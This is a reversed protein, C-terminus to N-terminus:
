AKMQRLILFGFIPLLTILSIIGGWYVYKQPKFEVTMEYDGTQNIPFSNLNGIKKSPITKEEVKAQWFEDYTESFVLEFPQTAKVRIRYKTPNIMEWNIEPLNDGMVFFHDYFDPLEYLAIKETLEIKKLWSIEDLFKEAEERQQPNYKHEAIFIESESDFPVIVYRVAMRKLAVETEPSLFYSLERVYCRDNPFCDGGWKSPMETKLSCFPEGCASDTVFDDANIAPHNNSYFGFRQRKPVWFTRFFEDQSDFFDKLVFYEQPTQKAEFTGKLKGFVAPKILFLLYGTIFLLFIKSLYRRRRLRNFIKSVAFPVLVSYSLAILVYFKTPDRFLGMGPLHNFLWLYIEGFPPKSGKALFSGILALSSFFLITKKIRLNKLGNIFLLSTFALIPLALFAPRMFYIKGFINEPWNPHLFSLSNSFDAFSLFGVWGSSSLGSPYSEKGSIITPLIWFFHVGIVIALPILFTEVVHKLHSFRYIWFFYFIATALTLAAIRPEFAIQLALSLGLIVSSTVSNNTTNRIFLAIVLPSIAYAFAISIQGGGIVMLIYSNLLFVFPALFRFKIKSSVTKILFRSSFIGIVLFPWYWALREIIVWPLNLLSFGKILLFLYPFSFLQVCFYGLGSTLWLYPTFSLEKLNEDFYFAADGASIEGFSFWAKFVLFFAVILILWFLPEKNKKM